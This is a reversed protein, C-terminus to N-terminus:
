SYHRNDYVTVAFTYGFMGVHVAIGPHDQPKISISLGAELLMPLSKYAEVEIAWHESLIFLKSAITKFAYQVFPIDIRLSVNIMAAAVAAVDM